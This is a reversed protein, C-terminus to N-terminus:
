TGWNARKSRVVTLHTKVQVVTSAPLLSHHYEVHATLIPETVEATYEMLAGNIQAILHQVVPSYPQGGELEAEFTTGPLMAPVAIQVPVEWTEGARLSNPLPDCGVSQVYCGGAPVLYLKVNDIAGPRIGARLQRIVNSVKRIFHTSKPGMENSSVGYSIHWGPQRSTRQLPLSYQGTITHFGIAQDISPLVLQAHVAASIFFVHCFATRPSVCFVGAALQIMNGPDPNSKRKRLYQRQSFLNLASRVADLSHFGLPLMVEFCSAADEDVYALAVRDHNFILNSVLISCSQTTDTLFNM